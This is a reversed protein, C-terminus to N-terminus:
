KVDFLSEQIQGTAEPLPHSTAAIQKKGARELYRKVLRQLNASGDDIQQTGLYPDVINRAESAKIGLVDMIPPDSGEESVLFFATVPDQQGERDLRWIVQQHIGPSWDLEGFVAVSCRHQLDDIGAGSRLSMILADTDGSMFREKETNKRGSSESGTYMAPRLDKLEELWIDYVARHWGLLLVPEGAEVMLRVFQAVSKAKSLGTAQRVMMDLERVAQGREVFTGTTARIALKRALDEISQVAKADYDVYEVIRSVKPLELGVDSKLRRLLVHQERLHTGLAKPDTIRGDRDVWERVFDEYSGLVTDDIFQMVNWMEAGYNYIPTATLGLHYITHEYLVKAAAGKATSTGTRLSQPEDIIAAKFFDTAFIDSWGAIQSIRFIYVDAQPLEYPKGDKLIPKATEIVHVRLYTFAQIKDRWQTQMHSDCVVAAPLAGPEACLFGAATYTKGLGGEDGLLLSRRRRLLEIAQQQYQRIEEGDRLGIIPPPVYGPLLIREIEAQQVDFLLKGSALAARDADSMRLPYRALFWDLDAAVMLDRPLTFPGPSQKPVRPFLQKFRIAVHPELRSIEWAAGDNILALEGFTRM